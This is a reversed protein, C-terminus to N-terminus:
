TYLEGLYPHDASAEAAARWISEVTIAADAHRRADDEKRATRAAEIRAKHALEEAITWTRGIDARFTTEEGTRWDSFFICPTADDHGVYYGTKEISNKSGTGTLFRHLKGDLILERPPTLGAATIAQRFQSEVSAVSRPAATPPIFPGGFIDTIDSM